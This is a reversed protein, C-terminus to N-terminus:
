KPRFREGLLSICIDFTQTLTVTGDVSMVFTFSTNPPIFKKRTVWFADKPNGQGPQIAMVDTGTTIGSFGVNSPIMFLPIELLTNDLVKFTIYAGYMLKQIDDAIDNTAAVGSAQQLPVYCIAIGQWDFGENPLVGQSIMNTDRKTKLVTAASGARILTASQGVSVAFFNTTTAGAAAYNARDYLPQYLMDVQSPDIAWNEKDGAQVYSPPATAVVPQVEYLGRM